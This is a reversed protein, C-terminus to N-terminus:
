KYIAIYRNYIREAANDKGQKTYTLALRLYGRQHLKGLWLLREYCQIVRSMVGLKSYQSALEYLEKSTCHYIQKM